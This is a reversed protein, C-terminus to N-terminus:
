HARNEVSRPLNCTGQSKAQYIFPTIVTRATVYMCIFSAGKYGIWRSRETGQTAASYSGYTITFTQVDVCTIASGCPNRQWTWTVFAMGQEQVRAYCINADHLLATCDAVTSVIVPKSPAAIGYPAPTPPLNPIAPAVSPGAAAALTPWPAWAPALSLVALGVVILRMTEDEQVV